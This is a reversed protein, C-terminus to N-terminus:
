GGGDGACRITSVTGPDWETTTAFDELYAFARSVPVDVTVTREIKM